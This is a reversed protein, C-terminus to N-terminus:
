RSLSSERLLSYLKATRRAPAVDHVRLIGAGRELAAFHVAQTEPLCEEPTLGLPKFIMSKRSVGVLIRRGHSRLAGMSDLLQWNQAPTKGFGFGPDLIWDSVGASEVRTEFETFYASVAACVDGGYDSFDTTEELSHMAIYPLGYHGALALLGPDRRGAYVDNVILRGDEVFSPLAKVSAEMVGSWYTDISLVISPFEDRILALVPLLRAIEVEEGVAPAGPRTSCAGLDIIDAGEELMSAIRQRVLGLDPTGDCGLCRSGAFYSNDTINVIGMIQIRDMYLRCQDAAFIGNNGFIRLNM